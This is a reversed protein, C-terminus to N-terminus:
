QSKELKKAALQESFIMLQELIEFDKQHRVDFIVQMQGANESIRAKLNTESLAQFYDQTLFFQGAM